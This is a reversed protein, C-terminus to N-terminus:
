IWRIEPNGTFGKEWIYWCYCIAMAKYKEFDGNMACLQRASNVYIYKLPYKKFFQLRAKGELFQIKLFMICYCGNELINLSHEVFEQAFKYPPNTLIDGKWKKDTKLFNINPTGFGRDILDSSIVKYGEEELLKSLHGEGCAPEWINKHLQINDKTLKDLFIKLAKPDTAYYDNKEREKESHNSAGLTIYTTRSNGTWDKDM